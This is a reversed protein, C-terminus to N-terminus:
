PGQSGGAGSYATEAENHDDEWGQPSLGVVRPSLDPVWRLPCPTAGELEDRLPVGVRRPSDLLPGTILEVVAAAVAEPLDEAIASAAPGAVVIQYPQGTSM